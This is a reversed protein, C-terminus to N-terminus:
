QMPIVGKDNSKLFINTYYKSLGGKGGFIVKNTKADLVRFMLYENVELIWGNRYCIKRMRSINKSARQSVFVPRGTTNIQWKHNGHPKLLSKHRDAFKLTSSKTNKM